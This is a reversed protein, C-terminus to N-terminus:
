RNRLRPNSDDTSDGRYNDAPSQSDPGSAVPGPEDGLIKSQSFDEADVISTKALTRKVSRTIALHLEIGIAITKILLDAAFKTISNM